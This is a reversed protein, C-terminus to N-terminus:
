ARKLLEEFEETLEEQSLFNVPEDDEGLFELYDVTDTNTSCEKCYTTHNPITDGCSDCVRM